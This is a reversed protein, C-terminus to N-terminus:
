AATCQFKGRLTTVTEDLEALFSRVEGELKTIFAEDRQVRQVYLRMDQPMRPDFSVFDAWAYGSIWLAGQVQAQHSPDMGNLLTEIHTATTPCKIELVGELEIIGDPSVGAMLEAHKLFGVEDVQHGTRAVYTERAYPEMETGWQMASNVYRGAPEGTLRECVLEALYDKRVQAPGGTKLRALVDKFRSGTVHGVRAMLWAHTRQEILDM